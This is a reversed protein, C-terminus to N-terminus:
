NMGGKRQRRDGDGVEGVKDRNEKKSHEEWGLEKRGREWSRGM